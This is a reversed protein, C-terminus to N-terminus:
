KNTAMTILDSNPRETWLGEFLVASLWVRGPVPCDSSLDVHSWGEPDGSMASPFHAPLRPGLPLSLTLATGYSSSSPSPSHGPLSSSVRASPVTHCLSLSPSLLTEGKLRARPGRPQHFLGCSATPLIM